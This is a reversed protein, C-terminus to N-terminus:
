NKNKNKTKIGSVITFISLPPIDDVSQWNDAGDINKKIAGDKIKEFPINYDLMTKELLSVPHSGTGGSEELPSQIQNKSGGMEDSGVINIKLFNRVARVFARNEAIAMLFNKAFNHTNDWHADALSSFEVERFNTEYNGIWNITCKVSVYDPRSELVDYKVSNFGRIQALEKIGGLLILLQNDQLTTIDIDKLNIDKFKDRNPVLYEPKIMGRWNITNDDNFKYDICNLFGNIDRSFLSVKDIYRIPNLIENNELNKSLKVM